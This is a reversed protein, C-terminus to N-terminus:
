YGAARGLLETAMCPMSFVPWARTISKAIWFNSDSLSLSRFLVAKVWHKGQRQVCGTNLIEKCNKSPQKIQVLFWYIILLCRKCCQLKFHLVAFFYSFTFRLNFNFNCQSEQQNLCSPSECIAFFYQIRTAHPLSLPALPVFLCAKCDETWKVLSWRQLAWYAMPILEPTSIHHTVLLFWLFSAWFIVFLLVM